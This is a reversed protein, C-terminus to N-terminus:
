SDNEDNGDGKITTAEGLRRTIEATIGAIAIDNMSERAGPPTEFALRRLQEHMSRPLRLTMPQVDETM